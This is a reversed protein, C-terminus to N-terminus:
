RWIKHIKFSNKEDDDVGVVVFVVGRKLQFLFLVFRCPFFVKGWNRDKINRCYKQWHWSGDEWKVKNKRESFIQMKMTWENMKWTKKKFSQRNKECWSIIKCHWFSPFKERQAQTHTYERSIMMMMMSEWGMHIIYSLRWMCVCMYIFVTCM